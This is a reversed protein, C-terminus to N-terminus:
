RELPLPLPFPRYIRIRLPQPERFTRPIWHRRRSPSLRRHSGAKARAGCLWGCSPTQVRPGGGGGWRTRDKARENGRHRSSRPGCTSETYTHHLHPGTDRGVASSHPLHFVLRGPQVPVDKGKSNNKSSLKFYLGNIQRGAGGTVACPRNAAAAPTVRAQTTKNEAVIIDDLDGLQVCSSLQPSSDMPVTLQCNGESLARCERLSQAPHTQVSRLAARGAWHTAAAGHTAKPRTVRCPPTM